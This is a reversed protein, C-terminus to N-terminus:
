YCVYSCLFCTFCFSVYVYVFASVHEFFCIMCLCVCEILLCCVCSSKLVVECVYVVVRVVVFVNM